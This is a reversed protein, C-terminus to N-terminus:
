QTNVTNFVLPALKKLLNKSGGLIGRIGYLFTKESFYFVEENMLQVYIWNKSFDGNM